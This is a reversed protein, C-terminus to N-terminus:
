GQAGSILVVLLAVFAMVVFSRRLASRVSYAINARALMAKRESENPWTELSLDPMSQREDGAEDATHPAPVVVMARSKPRNRVTERRGARRNRKSSQLTLGGSRLTAGRDAM